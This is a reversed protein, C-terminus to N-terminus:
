TIHHVMGQHMSMACIQTHFKTFTHPPLFLSLFLTTVEPWISSLIRNISITCKRAGASRGEDARADYEGEGEEWLRTTEVARRRTRPPCSYWRTQLTSTRSERRPTWDLSKEVDFEGRRMPGPGSQSSGFMRPLMYVVGGPEPPALKHGCGCWPCVCSVCRREPTPPGVGAPSSTRAAGASRRTCLAGASGEREAARRARTLAMFSIYVAIRPLTRRPHLTHRRGFYIRYLRSPEHRWRTSPEFEAPTQGSCDAPYQPATAAQVHQEFWGM